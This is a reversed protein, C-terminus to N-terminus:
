PQMLPQATLEEILVQNLLAKAAAEVMAERAGLLDRQASVWELYSYRGSE